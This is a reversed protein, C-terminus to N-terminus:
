LGMQSGPVQSVAIMVEVGQVIGHGCSTYGVWGLHIAGSPTATATSHNEENVM